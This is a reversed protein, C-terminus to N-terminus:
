QAKRESTVPPHVTNHMKRLHETEERLYAVDALVKAMEIHERRLNEPSSMSSLIAIRQSGTETLTDLRDARSDLVRLRKELDALQTIIAKIQMKGVAAAGAVSFLIGGLTAILKIDIAGDM